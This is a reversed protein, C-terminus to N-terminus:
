QVAEFHITGLPFSTRVIIFDEKKVEGVPLFGKASKIVAEVYAPIDKVRIDKTASQLSGKHVVSVTEIKNLVDDLAEKEEVSLEGETKQQM